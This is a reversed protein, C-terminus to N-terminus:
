NRSAPPLLQVTVSLLSARDARPGVLIEVDGPEHVLDLGPGLFRLEHVPLRMRLTRREGPRLRAQTVGKLELLPRAVSALPDRVFLFVTELDFLLFAIAVAYYKVPVARVNVPDIPTAGCEFPELKMASPKPKPGLVRNLFLTIAVFGLIAVLYLVFALYPNSITTM